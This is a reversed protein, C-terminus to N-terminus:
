NSEYMGHTGDSWGSVGHGARYTRCSRGCTPFTMHSMLRRGKELTDSGMTKLLSNTSSFGGYDDEKEGSSFFVSGVFLAPKSLKCINKKM